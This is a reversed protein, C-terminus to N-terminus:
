DFSSTTEQTTELTPHKNSVAGFGLRTDTRLNPISLWPEWFILYGNRIYLPSCQFILYGIGINFYYDWTKMKWFVGIIAWNKKDIGKWSVGVTREPNWPISSLRKNQFKWIGMVSLEKSESTEFVRFEHHNRVSWIGAWRQNNGWINGFVNM